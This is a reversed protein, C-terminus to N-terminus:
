GSAHYMGMKERLDPFGAIPEEAEGLRKLLDMAPSIDEGRADKAAAGLLWRLRGGVGYKRSLFVLLGPTFRNKALIVPVAGIRRADEQMLLSTAILEVCIRRGGGAGDGLEEYGFRRLNFSLDGEGIGGPDTEGELLVKGKKAAELFDMWYSQPDLVAVRERAMSRVPNSEDSSLLRSFEDRRLALLDIRTGHMEGVERAADQAKQIRAVNTDGDDLIALLEARNLKLNQRPKIASLSDVLDRMGHALSQFLSQARPKERLLRGKEALDWEAMTDELMPNTLNLSIVMSKGSKELSVTGEARMEEVKRHVNPYYASGYAEDLRRTLENISLSVGFDRVLISLIESKKDMEM